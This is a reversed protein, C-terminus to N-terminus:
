ECTSLISGFSLVCRHYALGGHDYVQEQLHYLVHASLLEKCPNYLSSFAHLYEQIFIGMDDIDSRESFHRLTRIYIFFLSFHFTLTEPFSSDPVNITLRVLLPLAIYLVFTRLQSAKWKNFKAFDRPYRHISHPYEIGNLLSDVFSLAGSRSKIISHWKEM